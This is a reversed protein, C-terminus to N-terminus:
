EEKSQELLHAYNNKIQEMLKEDLKVMYLTKVNALQEIGLYKVKRLDTNELIAEQLKAEKLNAGQLNAGGLNAKQLNAHQMDVGQLNAGSLDAEELNASLLTAGQLNANKLRASRLIAGTLYANELIAEELNAKNMIAGGLTVERLNTRWLISNELNAGSLDAEELNANSLISDNLVVSRLNAKHLNAFNLNSHQLNANPLYAKYLNANSLVVNQLNAKPLKAENLKANNLSAKQLNAESLDVARLNADDLNAKQLNANNLKANQLDAKRVYAGELNAQRLDARALFASYMDSFELNRGRLNAGKISEIREDADIEWYNVPKDSVDKERFDAFPNIHLKQFIWPVFERISTLEIDKAKVSKEHRIGNITGYSLLWFIIGVLVIITCFHFRRDRWFTMWRFSQKDAGRLATVALHYFVIACVVSILLLGIHLCTGFWEHRPLYRIWFFIFTIPIAWWALFIIVFERLLAIRPRNKILDIHRCVLSNLLWPYARQDLPKGDPFIAPLSALSKWLSDLYLHFYLYIGMIVFPAVRYFWAIPIETGIIPLPSSVSNTHLRVDTTTAITLLSYVCGLIMAFFIKRANKSTEEVVDLTKFEAIAEPLKANTLNAGALNNAFLRKAEQLDADYLDAGQMKTRLLHANQFRVDWLRAKKLNASRLDAGSLNAQRLIAGQLDANRLNADQFNTEALLTGRLYARRLSANRLNKRALNTSKLKTGSLDAKEGEDGNSDLWKKHSKLVRELEERSIERYKFKGEEVSTPVESNKEDQDVQYETM